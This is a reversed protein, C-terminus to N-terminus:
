PPTGQFSSSTCFATQEVGVGGGMGGSAGGGGTAGAQNTFMGSVIAPAEQSYLPEAEGHGVFVRTLPVTLGECALAQVLALRRSEDLAADDSAEVVVPYSSPCLVRAMVIFRHVLIWVPVLRCAM